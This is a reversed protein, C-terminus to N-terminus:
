RPHKRHKGENESRELLFSRFCKRFGIICEGCLLVGEIKDWGKPYRRLFNSEIEEEEECRECICRVLNQRM